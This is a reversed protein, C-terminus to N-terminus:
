LIEYKMTYNAKKLIATHNFTIWWSCNFTLCIMRNKLNRLNTFFFFEQNTVETFEM